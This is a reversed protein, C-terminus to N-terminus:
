SWGVGERGHLTWLEMRGYDADVVFMPVRSRFIDVIAEVPLFNRSRTGQGATPIPLGFM